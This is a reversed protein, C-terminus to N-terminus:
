IRVNTLLIMISTGSTIAKADLLPLYPCTIVKFLILFHIILPLVKDISKIKEIMPNNSDANTPATITCSCNLMPRVTRQNM